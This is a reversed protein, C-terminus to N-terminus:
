RQPPSAPYRRLARRDPDMRQGRKLGANPGADGSGPRREAASGEDCLYATAGAVLPAMGGVISETPLSLVATWLRCSRKDCARAPGRREEGSADACPTRSRTIPRTGRLFQVSRMACTPSWSLPSSSRASWCSPAIPFVIALICRRSSDRFIATGAMAFATRSVGALLSLLVGLSAVTAGIRVAPASAAGGAAEVVMAALQGTHPGTGGCWRLWRASRRGGCVRRAYHRARASDRAPHHPAPDVVEEGLTAIRAYGAFAFLAFGAAQLIGYACRRRRPSRARRAARRWGFVAAVISRARSLRAGRCRDRAHCARDEVCRFLQDGTLAM